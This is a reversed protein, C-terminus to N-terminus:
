CYLQRVFELVSPLLSLYLRYMGRVRLFSIGIGSNTIMLMIIVVSLELAELWFCVLEPMLVTQVCAIGGEKKLMRDVVGWIVELDENLNAEFMEIAVFKDYPVEPVPLSRYDCLLVTIKNNLGIEEIRRDAEEKQRVSLTISTVRCGTTSAARIAMSGWGSGFELLHDTPQLHLAQIIRDLKRYQAQELTDNDYDPHSRPLYIPSSYTMDPSLFAAFMDNSLDYHAAMNLAARNVTNTDTTRFLLSSLAAFITSTPTTFNSLNTRNLIFIQFAAKLDPTTIEKLMFSDAFGIDASILIRYWFKADHVTIWASPGTEISGFTWETGDSRIVLHGNTIGKLFSLVLKRAMYVPVIQAGWLLTSQTGDLVRKTASGLVRGLDM